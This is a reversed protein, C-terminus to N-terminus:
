YHVQKSMITIYKMTQLINTDIHQHLYKNYTRDQSAFIITVNVNHINIERLIQTM